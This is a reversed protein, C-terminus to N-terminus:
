SSSGPVGHLPEPHKQCGQLFSAESIAFQQHLSKAPTVLVAEEPCRLPAKLATCLVLTEALM